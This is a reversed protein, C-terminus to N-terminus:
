CPHLSIGSSLAWPRRKPMEQLGATGNCLQSIFDSTFSILLLLLINCWFEQVWQNGAAKHLLLSPLASVRVTGQCTQETGQPPPPFSLCWLDFVAGTVWGWDLPQWTFPTQRWIMVGWSHATPISMPARYQIGELRRERAGAFPFDSWVWDSVLSCQM